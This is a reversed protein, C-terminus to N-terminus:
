RILTERALDQARKRENSSLITYVAYRGFVEVEADRLKAAENPIYSCYWERNAEYLDSLYNKLLGAMEKASANDRCAFVAFENLNGGDLAVRLAFEVGSPIRLQGGFYDTKGDLHRFDGKAGLETEIYDAIETSSADSRYAPSCAVLLLLLALILLHLRHKM